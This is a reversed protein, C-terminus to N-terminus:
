IRKVWGLLLSCLFSLKSEFQWSFPPCFFLFDGYGYDVRLFTVSHWAHADLKDRSSPVTSPLRGPSSILSGTLPLLQASLLAFDEPFAKRTRWPSSARRTSRRATCKGSDGPFLWKRSDFLVACDSRKTRTLTSLLPLHSSRFVIIASYGPMCAYIEEDM